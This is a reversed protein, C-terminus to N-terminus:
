VGEVIQKEDASLGYLEYVLSDIEDISSLVLSELKEIEEQIEIRQVANLSDFHKNYKRTKEKSDIITDVLDIFPKQKEKSIDPIPIREVFLKKWRIAGSGLGSAILKMYFHVIKSNLIALIFKSSYNDNKNQMFYASTDIQVEGDTIAFSPVNVIDSWIIINENFANYFSCGRLDYWFTGKEKRKSISYNCEKDRQTLKQM